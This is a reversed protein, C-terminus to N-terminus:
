TYDDPPNATSDQTMGGHTWEELRFSLQFQLKSNALTRAQEKEEKAKLSSQVDFTCVLLLV